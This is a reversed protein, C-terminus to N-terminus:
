NETENEIEEIEDAQDKESAMWAWWPRRTEIEEGTEADIVTRVEERNRIFGFIKFTKRAKTEYAARTNNGEGVEKLEITCNESENCRKLRLRQFARESAVEPMIKIEANRGNSLMARLRSSNNGEILALKTKIAIKAGRSEGMGANIKRLTVRDRSLNRAEVMSVRIAERAEQVQEATYTQTENESNNRREQTYVRLVERAQAVEAKFYTGEEELEIEASAFAFMGLLMIGLVLNLALRKM